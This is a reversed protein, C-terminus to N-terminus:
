ARSMRFLFFGDFRWRGDTGKVIPIPMPWDNTGTVLTRRDAGDEVLANKAQYNAVFTARDAKDAVPDGSNLLEDAGEGLLKAAAAVDDKSLAAVLAKAAEEPTAFSAEDQTKGGCGGALFAMAIISAALARFTTLTSKQM